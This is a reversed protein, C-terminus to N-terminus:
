RPMMDAAPNMSAGANQGMTITVTAVTLGMLLSPPSHHQHELSCAVLVMLFTALGQDLGLEAQSGGLGPSSAMVAPGTKAISSSWSLLLLGAASFSGLFQGAVYAPLSSLPIRGWIAMGVSVAPNMHAGSSEGTVLIGVMVALGASLGGTLMAADGARSDTLSSLSIASSKVLCVMIFTGALM